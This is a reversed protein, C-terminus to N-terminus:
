RAGEIEVVYGATAMFDAYAGALTSDDQFQRVHYVNRCGHEYRITTVTTM